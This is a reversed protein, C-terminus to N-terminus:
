KVLKYIVGKEEKPGQGTNTLLYLERNNDEAFSLIMAKETPPNIIEINGSLWQNGQQQLYFIPGSWDAFIYKGQMVSLAKGNYVYGGTISIGTQHDYEAIPLILNATECDKQPNFCHMGEMTRWGYNGGKTIIDVEEYKNQGVDGAFLKGTKADFTIRWANRLGYAWIEPRANKGVFPNDAPIISKTGSNVDIRLIKGLLTNLNQGNGIAGHRDGAGGGDGVSIYLYGDKGFVMCGGNHNAEPQDITLWIKESKLDAVDGNITFESIISTHNTGKTNNPASYYVYFKKNSKFKPHLVFGLLGREDYIGSLKVMKSRLDLMPLLSPKGNTISRITGTQESVWVKGSGDNAFVLDIPSTLESAFKQFRLKIPTPSTEKQASLQQCGFNLCAFCAIAILLKVTKIM